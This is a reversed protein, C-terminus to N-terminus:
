VSHNRIANVKVTMQESTFPTLLFDAAGTKMAEAFMKDSMDPTLVLFPIRKLSSHNMVARLLELGNVKPMDLDSIILNVPHEMLADLADKGDIAEVIHDYGLHTLTKRLLSRMFRSDDVILVVFSSGTM